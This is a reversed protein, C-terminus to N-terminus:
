NTTQVNTYKGGFNKYYIGFNIDFFKLTPLLLFAFHIVALNWYVNFFFEVEDDTTEREVSIQNKHTFLYFLFHMSYAFKKKKKM